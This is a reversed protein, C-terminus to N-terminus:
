LKKCNYLSEPQFKEVWNKIINEKSYIKTNPDVYLLHFLDILENKPLNEKKSIKQFIHNAMSKFFLEIEGHYNQFLDKVANEKTNLRNQIFMYMIFVIGRESNMGTLDELFKKGNVPRILEGPYFKSLIYEDKSAEDFISYLEKVTEVKGFAKGLFDDYEIIEKKNNTYKRNILENFDSYSECNLVVQYIEELNGKRIKKENIVPFYIKLLEETLLWNIKLRNNQIFQFSSRLIAYKKESGDRLYNSLLELIVLSSTFFRKNLKQKKSIGRIVSTDVYIPAYFMLYLKQPIKKIM